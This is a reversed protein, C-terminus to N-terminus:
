KCVADLFDKYITEDVTFEDKFTVNNTCFANDSQRLAGINSQVRNFFGVTAVRLEPKGLLATHLGSGWLGTVIKAQRFIAIQQRWPLEEMVVASFGHSRAIEILNAENICVRQPARPNRFSRRAVFIREGLGVRNQPLSLAKVFDDILENCFPHFGEHSGGICTPIIAKRLLIRECTEDFLEIRSMPIHLDDTLIKLLWEPVSKELLYHINGIGAGLARGVILIRLLMELIFHGYVHLGHGLIVATPHKVVRVPLLRGRKLSKTGGTNIALYNAVYEPMIERSVVLKNGLWIQGSGSIFADDAFYCAVDFPTDRDDNHHYKIIERNTFKETGPLLPRPPLPKTLEAIRLRRLGNGKQDASNIERALDFLNPLLKIPRQLRWNWLQEKFNHLGFYM